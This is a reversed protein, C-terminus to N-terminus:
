HPQPSSAAGLGLRSLRAVAGLWVLFILGLFLLGSVYFSTTASLQVGPLRGHSQAARLESGPGHRQRAPPGLAQATVPDNPRSTSSWSPMTALTARRDV